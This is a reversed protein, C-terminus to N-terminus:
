QIVLSAWKLLWINVIVTSILLRTGDAVLSSLKRLTASRAQGPPSLSSLTSGKEPFAEYVAALQM